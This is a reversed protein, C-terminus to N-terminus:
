TRASSPNSEFEDDLLMRPPWQGDAISVILPVHLRREIDNGTRVLSDFYSVGFAAGVGFFLALFLGMALNLKRNPRVPTIPVGALDVITVNAVKERDLAESIRAEEQKKAYLLYNNQHLQWQRRLAEHTLSAREMERLHQRNQEISKLIEEEQARYGILNFRARTLDSSLSMMAKNIDSSVELPQANEAKQIAEEIQAIRARLSQALRSQPLKDPPAGTQFKTEYQEQLTHLEKKLAELVSASVRNTQGQLLEPETVIQQELFKVQQASAQSSARVSSLQAEYDALKQLLLERQQEPAVLGNETEFNRLRAAANQLTDNLVEAQKQFFSYIGPNEHVELHRDVYKQCMENVLEAALRPDESEYSVEIINSKPVIQCELYKNLHAVALELMMDQDLAVTDEAAVLRRYLNNGRAVDRLLSTSKLIEIETNLTAESIQSRLDASVEDTPSIIANAREKKLLLKARAVYISPMLITVVAVTAFVAAFVALGLRRRRYILLLTEKISLGPNPHPRFDNVGAQLEARTQELKTLQPLTM